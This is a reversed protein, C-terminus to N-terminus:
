SRDSIGTSIPDRTDWSLQVMTFSADIVIFHTYHKSQTYISTALVSLICAISIM